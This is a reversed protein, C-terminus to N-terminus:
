LLGGIGGSGTQSFAVCTTFGGDKSYRHQVWRTLCLGNLEDQPADAIEIASGVVVASAGPVLIRGALQTLSAASSIGDAASQAADSSRLSADQTQREPGGDGASGTVSSPDKVLWSWAEQGQSGAAGQGITTVAGVVPTSETVHLSLIDEGYTFTQVAQGAVFPAFSLDGDPTFYALFGSKRALAAVHQYANRRDDVM